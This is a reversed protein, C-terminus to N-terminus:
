CRPLRSAYAEVLSAIGVYAVMKAQGAVLDHALLALAVTTLGNGVLATVQALFSHRYIRHALVQLVPGEEIHQLRNCAAHQSSRNVYSEETALM